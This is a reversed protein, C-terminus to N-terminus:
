WKHRRGILLSPLPCARNRAVKRVKRVKRNKRPFKERERAVTKVNKMKRMKKKKRPFKERARAVTIRKQEVKKRKFISLFCVRVIIQMAKVRIVIYNQVKLHGPLSRKQLKKM